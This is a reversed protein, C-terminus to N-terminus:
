LPLLVSLTFRSTGSPQSPQGRWRPYCWWPRGWDAHGPTDWTPLMMCISLTRHKINFILFNPINEPNETLNYNKIQLKRHSMNKLLIEKGSSPVNHIMEDSLLAQQEHSWHSPWYSLFTVLILGPFQCQSLVRVSPHDTIQRVEVNKVCGIDYSKLM